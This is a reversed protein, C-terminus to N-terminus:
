YVNMFQATYDGLIGLHRKKDLMVFYKNRFYCQVVIVQYFM